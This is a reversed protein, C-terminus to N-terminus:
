QAEELERELFWLYEGNKLEVRILVISTYDEVIWDRVIGETGKTVLTEHKTKVKLNTQIRM